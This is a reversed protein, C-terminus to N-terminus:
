TRYILKITNEQTAEHSSCLHPWCHHYFCSSALRLAVAELSWTQTVGVTTRNTSGFTESSPMATAETASAEM